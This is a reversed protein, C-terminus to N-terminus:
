IISYHEIARKVKEHVCAFLSAKQLSTLNKGSILNICNVLRKDFQERNKIDAGWAKFLDKEDIGGLQHSLRNREESAKSWAEFDPCPNKSLIDLELLKVQIWRELKMDRTPDVWNKLEPHVNLISTKLIYRSQSKEIHPSFEDKVWEFLLGEIARFSHLMAETTNKQHLRVMALYAQEYAMWWYQKSRQKQEENFASQALQFFKKFQGQNWEVGAKVLSPIHSWAKTNQKFYPDLIELVEAYDYRELLKLVQQQTRDWLYNTGLFPGTYDASVGKQNTGPISSFDFFQINNGYSSLGSVRAAESAQGVGGKICLLIPQNAQPQIDIKWVKQWWQFMQEFNSPNTGDEGIYLIHVPLDPNLQYLWYKILNGAYLTDKERERVTEQQATVVLYITELNHLQALLLKGIIVPKVKGSFYDINDWLYQTLNRYSCEADLALDSVVELQETLIDSKMRDDGINYWDGSSIQFMLDRTGITAVLISKTM